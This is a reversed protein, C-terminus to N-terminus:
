YRGKYGRGEYNKEWGASELCQGYLYRLRKNRRKKEQDVAIPDSPDVETCYTGRYDSNYTCNGSPESAVTDAASENCRLSIKRFQKDNAKGRTWYVDEPEACAGALALVLAIGTVKFARIRVSKVTPM